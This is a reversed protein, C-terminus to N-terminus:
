GYRVYIRKARKPKVASNGLFRVTVKLKGGSAKLRRHVRFTVRQRYKCTKSVRARRNSITKTGNKIQVSVRGRCGLTKSVSKPLTVKGTFTYRYPFTADRTPRAKVSVRRPTVRGKTKFTADAGNTTGSANVAVLRYHYGQGAKLGKISASVAVPGSGAPVAVPTTQSGYGASTGYQFTFTTSASHADVKGTLTVTNQTVNTAPGTTVTPASATTFTKDEGTSTGDTNTVVLRYHYTTNPALGSLNASVPVAAAGAALATDSTSAGYSATTGYDFHYSSARNPTASGSVTVGTSSPTGADGTTAGPPAFEYAGVDCATGVPRAQGTQDLPPCATASGDGSNIAPSGALLAYTDTPGGNNALASALGVDSVVVDTGGAAFCSSDDTINHGGSQTESTCNAPTTTDGSHNRAIITNTFTGGDPTGCCVVGSGQTASNEVITSANVTLGNATDVDIATDYRSTSHSITSANITAHGADIDIGAGYNFASNGDLLDRNLTVEAAAGDVYVAGGQSGTDANAIFASDSVTTTGGEALLGAGGDAVNGHTITVGAISITGDTVHFIRHADAGHIATARAGAGTITLKTASNSLTPLDSALTITGAPINITDGSPDPSADVQTMADRLSGPGSDATNVNYTAAAATAPLALACTALILAPLLRRLAPRNLM